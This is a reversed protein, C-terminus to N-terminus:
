RRAEALIRATSVHTKRKYRTRKPTPKKPGRRHKRFCELDVRRALEVLVNAMQRPSLTGFQRQWRDDSIAVMMGRMMGRLEDAVYYASIDDIAGEGHVRALATRTVSLINYALLGLGFAFLAAPPYGLTSIECHLATALECFAGELRWRRRYLEAIEKANVRNPLNTLIHIETDGDETPKDLKVTIRRATRRNGWDDILEVRQQYVM